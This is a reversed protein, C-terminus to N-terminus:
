PFLENVGAEEVGNCSPNIKLLSLCQKKDSWEMGVGEMGDVDVGIAGKGQDVDTGFYALM